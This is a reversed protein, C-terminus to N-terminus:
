FDSRIRIFEAHRWDKRCLELAAEAQRGSKAIDELRERQEAALTEEEGSGNSLTQFYSVFPACFFVFFM